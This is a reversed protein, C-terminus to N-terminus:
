KAKRNIKIQDFTIYLIEVYNFQIKEVVRFLINASYM